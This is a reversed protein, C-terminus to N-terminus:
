ATPFGVDLKVGMRKNAAATSSPNPVPNTTRRGLAVFCGGVVPFIVRVHHVCANGCQPNCKTRASERRVSQPVRRGQHLGAQVRTRPKWIIIHMKQSIALELIQSSPAALFVITRSRNMGSLVRRRSTLAMISIGRLPHCCHCFLTMKQWRRLYCHVAGRDAWAIRSSNDSVPIRSEVVPNTRHLRSRTM